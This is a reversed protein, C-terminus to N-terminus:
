LRLSLLDAYISVFVPSSSLSNENEDNEDITAQRINLSSHYTEIPHWAANRGITSEHENHPVLDKIIEIVLENPLDHFTAM